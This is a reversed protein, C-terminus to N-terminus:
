DPFNFPQPPTLNDRFDQRARADLENAAEGRLYDDLARAGFLLDTLSDAGKALTSASGVNGAREYFFTATIKHFGDDAWNSPLSSVTVPYASYIPVMMEPYKVHDRSSGFGGSIISTTATDYFQFLMLNTVISDFYRNSATNPSVEDLWQTFYKYIPIKTNHYFTLTIENFERKYPTRIKQRGPINFDTTILSRGPFEISDCLFTFERLDSNPYYNTLISPHKEMRLAFKCSRLLNQNRFNDLNFYQSSDDRPTDRSTSVTFEPIIQNPDAM